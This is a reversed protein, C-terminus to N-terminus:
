VGSMCDAEVMEGEVSKSLADGDAQAILAFRAPAHSRGGNRPALMLRVPRTAGFPCTKREKRTASTRSWVAEQEEFGPPADGCGCVGACVLLRGVPACDAFSVSSPCHSM